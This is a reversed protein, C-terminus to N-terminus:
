LCYTVTSFMFVNLNKWSDFRNNNVVKSPFDVIQQALSHLVSRPIRFCRASLKMQINQLIIYKIYSSLVHIINNNNNSNNNTKKCLRSRCQSGHLFETEPYVSRRDTFIAECGKTQRRKTYMFRDLCYPVQLTFITHYVTWACMDYVPFFFFFLDLSRNLTDIGNCYFQFNIRRKKIEPIGGSLAMNQHSDCLPM